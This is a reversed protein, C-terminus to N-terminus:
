RSGPTDGRVPTQPRDSYRVVARGDVVEVWHYIRTPVKAPAGAVAQGKTIRRVYDRTERYPPVTQGYRDVAGPGANYAALALEVKDDYRALLRKLYRVGGGINQAPDFANAVGLEVATAPMLQMLGMAGKPSIAHPNFASEVQIVARVLDPDVGHTAAHEDILPDFQASQRDPPRTVRVGRAKPVEFTQMPTGSLPPKDSLVMQGAADRWAYIQAHATATALLSAAAVLCALRGSPM